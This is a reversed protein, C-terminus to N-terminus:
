NEKIALYIYEVNNTNFGYYNAGNKPQFGTSLFDLDYASNSQEAINLDPYLRKNRPNSTSRASDYIM